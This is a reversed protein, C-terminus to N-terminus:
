CGTESWQTPGCPSLDFGSVEERSREIASARDPKERPPLERSPERPGQAAGRTPPRKLVEILLGIACGYAVGVAFSWFRCMM